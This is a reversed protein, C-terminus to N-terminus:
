KDRYFEVVQDVIHRQALQHARESDSPLRYDVDYMAEGPVYEDSTVPVVPTVHFTGPEMQREAQVLADRMTETGRIARVHTM